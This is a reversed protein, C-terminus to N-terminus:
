RMWIALFLFHDTLNEYSVWAVSRGKCRVSTLSKHPTGGETLRPSLIDLESNSTESGAPAAIICHPGRPAGHVAREPAWHLSKLPISFPFCFLMERYLTSFPLRYLTM